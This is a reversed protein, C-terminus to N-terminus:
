FSGGIQLRNEATRREFRAFISRIQCRSSPAPPPIQVWSNNLLIIMTPLPSSGKQTYTGESTEFYSGVRKDGKFLGAHPPPEATLKQERLWGRFEEETKFTKSTVVKEEVPPAEEVKVVEGKKWRHGCTICEIEDVRFFFISTGGCRPCVKAPCIDYHESYQSATGEWGCGWPCKM